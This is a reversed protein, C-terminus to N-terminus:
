YKIRPDTMAYVIDMFFNVALVMAAILVVIAQAVPFDSALLSQRTLSGIGNWAFVSEVIVAGGLLYTAQLGLITIAPLLANRLVHRRVVIKRDIGRARAARVYDLNMVELISGRLVKTTLAIPYLALTITPLVISRWGQTGQVPFTHLSVAFFIILVPGAVFGPIAQCLTCFSGVLRDFISDRRYAAAIGLAGAVIITLAMAAGALKLTAPLRTLALGMASTGTQFSDGFDGRIAHRLFLEYQVLLPRDIGLAHKIKGEQQQTMGAVQMGQALPDGTSHVIIFVITVVGWLVLLGLFFRRVLFTIV